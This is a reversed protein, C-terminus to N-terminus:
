TAFHWEIASVGKIKHKTAYDRVKLSNSFCENSDEKVTWDIDNFMSLFIIRDEFQEPKIGRTAMNIQIEKLLEVTTHTRPFYEVRVSIAETSELHNKIDM